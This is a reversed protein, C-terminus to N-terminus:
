RRLQPAAEPAKTEIPEAAGVGLVPASGKESFFHTMFRQGEGIREVEIAIADVSEQLRTLRDTLDRPLAPIHAAGRPADRRSALRWVVYAGPLLLVAHLGAHMLEGRVAAYIGGAFNVLIFLEAVALWLKSRRNM